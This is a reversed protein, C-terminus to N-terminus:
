PHDLGTRHHPGAGRGQVPWPRHGPARCGGQRRRDARPHRAQGSGDGCGEPHRDPQWGQRARDHRRGRRPHQPRDRGTEVGAFQAGAHAPGATAGRGTYQADGPGDLEPRAIRRGMTRRGLQRGAAMPRAEPEQGGRRRHTCIGAPEEGRASQAPEASLLRHPFPHARRHLRAHRLRRGSRHRPHDQGIAGQGGGRRDRRHTRRRHRDGIAGDAHRRRDLGDRQCLRHRAGTGEGVPQQEIGTRGPRDCERGANRTPQVDNSQERTAPRTWGTRM